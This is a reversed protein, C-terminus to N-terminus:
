CKNLSSTGLIMTTGIIHNILFIILRIATQKDKAYNKSLTNLKRRGDQYITFYQCVDYIFQRGWRSRSLVNGLENAVRRLPSRKSIRRDLIKEYIYKVRRTTTKPLKQDFNCRVIASDDENIYIKCDSLAEIATLWPKAFLTRHIIIERSNQRPLSVCAVLRRLEKICDDYNNARKVLSHCLLANLKENATGNNPTFYSFTPELNFKFTKVNNDPSDKILNVLIQDLYFFTHNRRDKASLLCKFLKENFKAPDNIISLFKFSKMTKRPLLEQLLFYVYTYIIKM